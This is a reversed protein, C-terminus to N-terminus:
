GDGSADIIDDINDGSAELDDTEEGSKNDAGNGSSEFEGAADDIDIFDSVDKGRGGRKGPVDALQSNLVFLM